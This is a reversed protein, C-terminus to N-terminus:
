QREGKKQTCRRCEGLLINGRGLDLFELFANGVFETELQDIM